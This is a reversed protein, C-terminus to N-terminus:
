RPAIDFHLVDERTGLRSRLAIAADDGRDAQGFVVHAGRDVALGCLRRILVTAVGMRRFPASVALDYIDLESRERESQVLEYAALGGIM